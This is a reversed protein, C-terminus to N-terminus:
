HEPKLGEVRITIDEYLFKVNFCELMEEDIDWVFRIEDGNSLGEATDLSGSISTATMMNFDSGYFMKVFREIDNRSVEDTMGRSKLLEKMKKHYLIVKDGYDEEMKSYDISYGATGLTDYGEAAVTIYENLNITVKHNRIVVLVGTILLLLAVAGVAPGIVGKSVKSREQRNENSGM